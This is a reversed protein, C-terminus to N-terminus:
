DSTKSRSYEKARHVIAVFTGLVLLTCGIWLINIWPFVIAKMIIFEQKNDKKESIALSIKGTEPDIKTFTVKLGLAELTEEKSFVTRDRVAFLPTLTYKKKNIDTVELVARVAIDNPGLGLSARDTEPVLGSFTILANSTTLTDGAAVEETVPELYGGETEARDLNEIDAYTVHTYIDKDVFRRTAPEAVNGMRPNLQVSPSLTFAPIFTGKEFDPKLYEINYFVNVGKKEYGKYTIFYNAMQLTDNKVLMINENNPFDKGLDVNLLNRSIVQSKGNSILAGLLIFALGAHAISAGSFSIKGKLVRV